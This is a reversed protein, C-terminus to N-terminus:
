PRSRSGLGRFWDNSSPLFLLGALLLWAASIAAATGIEGAAAGGGIRVGAMVAAIALLLWRGWGRGRTAAVVAVAQVAVVAAAVLLPLTPEAALARPVGVALLAVDIVDGSVLGIVVLVACGLVLVVHARFSATLWGTM